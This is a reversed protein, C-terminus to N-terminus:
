FSVKAVWIASEGKFDANFLELGRKILSVSM